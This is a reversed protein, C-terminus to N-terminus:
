KIPGKVPHSDPQQILPIGQVSKLEHDILTKLNEFTIAGRVLKGNLVFTPTSNIGLHKAERLDRQIAKYSEESTLCLQFKSIEMGVAPAMRILAAPSLDEAAFLADHYPWFLGQEAACFGGRAAATAHEHINLPFNKFILKVDSRYAAIIEKIAAQAQRCYPCQFDSFEVITVTAQRPGLVPGDDSVALSPLAPEPLRIEIRANSKLVSIANRYNRMHAQAELDLRLRERAEDPSMAAFASANELYLDEVQRPLVEVEGTTLERRLAPLSIGRKKAEDELVARVLLNELAAKRLAYLQQELPLLQSGISSDVEGQTISRDNVIAVITQQTQAWVASSFAPLTIAMLSCAIVRYPNTLFGQNM